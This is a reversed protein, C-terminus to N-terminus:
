LRNEGHVDRCFLNNYNIRRRCPGSEFIGRYVIGSQPSGNKYYNRTQSDVGVRDLVIIRIYMNAFADHSICIENPRLPKHAYLFCEPYDSLWRSTYGVLRAAPSSAISQRPRYRLSHRRSTSAMLTREFYKVALIHHRKKKKKQPLVTHFAIFREIRFQYSYVPSGSFKSHFGSVNENDNPKERNGARVYDFRPKNFSIKKERMFYASDRGLDREINNRDM